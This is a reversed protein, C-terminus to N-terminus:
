ERLVKCVINAAEQVASKELTQHIGLFFGRRSVSECEVLGDHKLAKFAPQLHSAGGMLSRVEVEEELIREMIAQRSEKDVLIPFVFPSLPTSLPFTKASTMEKLLDLALQYNELRRSEQVPWTNLHFRGFCANLESMEVNIGEQVYFFNHDGGGPAPCITSDYHCRCARGWHTISQLSEYTHPDPTTLAGGGFSSLHHPHYFSHTIIDGYQHIPKGGSQLNMTECADQILMAGHYRTLQALKELDAPFGLFHTVVVAAVQGDNKNLAIELARPCLTFGDKVTDVLEVEFGLLTFASITTPFSFGAMLVKPRKATRRVYIAAALNASSGSNVLTIYPSQFLTGLSESFLKLNRRGKGLEQELFAPFGQTNTPGTCPYRFRAM